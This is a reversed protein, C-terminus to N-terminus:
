KKKFVCKFCIKITNDGGLEVKYQLERDREIRKRYGEGSGVAWSEDFIPRRRTSRPRGSKRTGNNDIKEQITSCCSLSINHEACFLM